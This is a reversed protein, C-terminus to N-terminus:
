VSSFSDIFVSFSPNTFDKSIKSDFLCYIYRIKNESLSFLISFYLNSFLCYDKNLFISPLKFNLMFFIHFDISSRKNVASVGFYKYTLSEIRSIILNRLNIFFLFYDFLSFITSLWFPTLLKSSLHM